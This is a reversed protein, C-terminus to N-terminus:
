DEDRTRERDLWDDVSGICGYYNGVTASLMFTGETEDRKTGIIVLTDLGYTKALEQGYQAIENSEKQLEAKMGAGTHM